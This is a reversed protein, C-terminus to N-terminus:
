PLNLNLHTLPHAPTAIQVTSAWLWTRPSFILLIQLYLTMKSVM